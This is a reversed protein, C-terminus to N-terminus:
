NVFKRRLVIYDAPYDLRVWRILNLIEGFVYIGIHMHICM